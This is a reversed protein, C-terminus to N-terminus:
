STPPYPHQLPHFGRDDVWGRIVANNGSHTVQALILFNGENAGIAYPGPAALHHLVTQQRSALSTRILTAGGDGTRNRVTVVSGGDSSIAPAQNVGAMGSLRLQVPGAQFGHGAAPTRLGRFEWFCPGTALTTRNLQCLHAALVLSHGDPTWVASTISPRFAGEALRDTWVRRAGTTLNLVILRTAEAAPSGAPIQALALRSGDPSLALITLNQSQPKLTIGTIRTFRSMTGTGTIRFRYLLERSGGTSFAV